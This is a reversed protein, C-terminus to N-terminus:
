GREFWNLIRRRWTLPKVMAIARELEAAKEESADFLEKVRERMKTRIQDRIEAWFPDRDDGLDEAALVGLAWDLARRGREAFQPDRRQFEFVLIRTLVEHADIKAYFAVGPERSDMQWFEKKLYRLEPRRPSIRSGWKIVGM